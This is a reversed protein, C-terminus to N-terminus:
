GLRKEVTQWHNCPHVEDDFTCRYGRISHEPKHLEMIDRLADTNRCGCGTYIKDILDHNTIM